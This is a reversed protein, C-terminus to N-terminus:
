TADIGLMISAEMKGPQSNGQAWQLFNRIPDLTPLVGATRALPELIGELTHPEACFYLTSYLDGTLGIRVGIGSLHMHSELFCMTSLCRETVQGPYAGASRFMWRLREAGLPDAASMYFRVDQITGSALSAGFATEPHLGVSMLKQRELILSALRNAMASHGSLTPCSITTLTHIGPEPPHVALRLIGPQGDDFSLLVGWDSPHKLPQTLCLSLTHSLLPILDDPLGYRSLIASTLPLM